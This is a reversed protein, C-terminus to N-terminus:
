FVIPAFVYEWDCDLLDGSSGRTWNELVDIVGNSNYYPIGPFGGSEEPGRVINGFALVFQKPYREVTELYLMFEERTVPRLREEAMASQVIRDNMISDGEQPVFTLVVFDIGENQVEKRNRQM